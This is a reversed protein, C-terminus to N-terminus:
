VISWNFLLIGEITNLKISANSLALMIDAHTMMKFHLFM